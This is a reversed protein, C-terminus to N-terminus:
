TGLSEGLKKNLYDVFPQIGESRGWFEVLIYEEYDCQLFPRASLRMKYDDSEILQNLIVSRIINRQTKTPNIIEVCDQDHCSKTVSLM